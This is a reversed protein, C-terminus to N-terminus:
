PYKFTLIHKSGFTPEIRLGSIIKGQSDVACCLVTYRSDLAEADTSVTSPLLEKEQLLKNLANVTKKDINSSELNQEKQFISVVKASFDGFIQKAREEQLGASIEQRTAEDNQLIIAKDLLLQLAEQLNNVEPSKTGLKLPFTIKKM